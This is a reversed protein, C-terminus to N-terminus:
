PVVTLERTAATRRGGLERAGAPTCPSRRADYTAGHRLSMPPFDDPPCEIGLSAAAKRYFKADTAAAAAEVVDVDQAAHGWRIMQEAVWAAHTASPFTHPPAFSRLRWDRPRASVSERGPALAFSRDAQLSMAVVDADVNLYQPAALMASLARVNGPDECFACARLVARVMAFLADGHLAAWRRTVALVKEPHAPLVDTTAAVVTGYGGRAALTNWPEGVCFGDLHGRHIQEAMQPPPIVCLRVDSDPNVEAAALWERLLYHHMSCHFVHALM